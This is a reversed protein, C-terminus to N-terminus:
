QKAAETDVYFSALSAWDAHFLQKTAALALISEAQGETIDRIEALGFVNRIVIETQEHGNQQLAARLRARQEASAPKTSRGVRDRLEQALKPEAPQAPKSDAFWDPEDPKDDVIEGTSARVRHGNTSVAEDDDSAEPAVEPDSSTLQPAAGSGPGFVQSAAPLLQNLFVKRVDPHSMDPVYRLVAFPRLLEQKPYSGHLSLVARIARNFAKTEAMAVLHERAKALRADTWGKALQHLDIRKTGFAKRTRGAPTTMEVEVRWEVVDPDKGNDMRRSDLMTIGAVDALKSLGRATPAHGNNAMQSDHYIDTESLQVVEIDPVLYPNVQRLSVTPVLLNYENPPYDKLKELVKPEWPEGAPTVTALATSATM